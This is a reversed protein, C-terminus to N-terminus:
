DILSEVFDLVRFILVAAVLSNIGYVLLSRPTIHEIRSEDGFSDANCVFVATIAYLAALGLATVFDLRALWAVLLATVAGTIGWEMGTRSKYDTASASWAAFLGVFPAGFGSGFALTGIIGASAHTTLVSTLLGAIFVSVTGVALGTFLGVAGRSILTKIIQVLKM